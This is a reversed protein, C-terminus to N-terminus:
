KLIIEDAFLMSEYKSGAHHWEPLKGYYQAVIKVYRASLKDFNTTFVHKLHGKEKPSITNTITKQLRYKEEVSNKVYIAIKKPFIVWDHTIQYFGMSFFKIEQKKELDIEIDINQGGYGQWKGSKLDNAVGEQGDLLAFKGGGDYSPHYTSYQTNLKHLKGIAKHYLFSKKSVPYNKKDTIVKANIQVDKKFFLPTTYKTYSNKTVDNEVSYYIPLDGFLSQISIKRGKETIEKSASIISYGELNNLSKIFNDFKMINNYLWYSRNEQYWLGIYTAKLTAAKEILQAITTKIESASVKKDNQMFRYLNIRFINKELTFKVQEIAFELYALTHNNNKVKPFASKIEASLDNLRKLLQLNEKMKSNSVYELHIPFIPEFFRSNKLIDRVGSQHLSSFEVIKDTLSNNKLGYFIADFATNFSDYKNKRELNSQKVSPNFTAPNWSNEAGWTLGHWNNQFFNLGDDDWTTNFVGTANLKYGDRIFNYINIETDKFNPFVNSWCNIGPAVWFNAGSNSLPTIAYDFNDEAHYGWAMVTINKPLKEVLKPYSGVIDGWMIIKKDYPKLMNNLNNIHYLYVGDIGLSDVMAKSKGEGLGFTEDCNINFYKGSFTPVIEQYVDNLFTYSEKLAPSIIHENEALHNYKPVALTKAMHGFSQYSGILNVHHKKAFVSLLEIEAKTIGNKPAITPHKELKFIHEIYLSFHNLKFSAMKVIQEKLVTMSPIPGRSIDDQWARVAIDPYDYIVLAPIKNQNRNAKILQKLTQIGYFIGADTPAIIKINKSTVSIFYAESNDKSNIVINNTALINKFEKESDIKIFEIFNNTAKKSEKLQINLESKVLESLNNIYFLDLSNSDIKTNSNFTFYSNTQTIKKPAPILKLQASASLTFILLFLLINKSM